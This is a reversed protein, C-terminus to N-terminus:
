GHNVDEEERDRPLLAARWGKVRDDWKARLEPSRPGRRRDEDEDYSLLLPLVERLVDDAQLLARALDQRSVGNLWAITPHKLLREVESRTPREDTM